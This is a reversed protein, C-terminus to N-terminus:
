CCRRCVGGYVATDAPKLQKVIDGYGELEVQAGAHYKWNNEQRWTGNDWLDVDRFWFREGPFSGLVRVFFSVTVISAGDRFGNVKKRESDTTHLVIHIHLWSLVWSVNRQGCTWLRCRSSQFEDNKLASFRQNVEGICNAEATAVGQVMWGWTRLM